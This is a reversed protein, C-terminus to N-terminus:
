YRSLCVRMRDQRQVISSLMLLSMLGMHLWIARRSISEEKQQQEEWISGYLPTWFRPRVKRYGESASSVTALRHELGEIRNTKTADEKKLQAIERARITDKGKPQAIERKMEEIDALLGM